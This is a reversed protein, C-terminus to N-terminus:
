PRRLATRAALRSPKLYDPILTEPQGHRGPNRACAPDIEVDFAIGIRGETAWAVKGPIGGIGKTEVVVAHGSAVPAPCEAMMGTASLNRIRVDYITPMGAFTLKGGLFLSDRATARKAAGQPLEDTSPIKDFIGM